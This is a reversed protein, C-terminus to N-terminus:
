WKPELCEGWVAAKRGTPYTSLFTLIFGYTYTQINEYSIYQIKKYIKRSTKAVLLAARPKSVLAM